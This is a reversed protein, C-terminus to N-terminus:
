QCTDYGDNYPASDYYRIAGNRIDWFISSGPGFLNAYTVQQNGAMTTNPLGPGRFTYERFEGNPSDIESASYFSAGNITVKLFTGDVEFAISRGELDKAALKCANAQVGMTLLALVVSSFIVSKM